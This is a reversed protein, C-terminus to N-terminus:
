KARPSRPTAARSARQDAARVAAQPQRRCAGARSAFRRPASAPRGRRRRWGRDNRSPPPRSHSRRTLATGNRAPRTGRVQPSPARSCRSGVYTTDVNFAFTVIQRFTRQLATGVTRRFQRRGPSLGYNINSPKAPSFGCAKWIRRAMERVVLGHRSPWSPFEM